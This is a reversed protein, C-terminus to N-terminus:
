NSVVSFTDTTTGSANNIPTLSPSAVRFGEMPADEQLPLYFPMTPDTSPMNINFDAPTPNGTATNISYFDNTTANLHAHNYPEFGVKSQYNMNIGFANNGQTPYSAPHMQTPQSPNGILFSFDRGLMVAIDSNPRGCGLYSSFSSLLTTKIEEEQQTLTSKLLFLRLGTLNQVKSPAANIDSLEDGLINIIQTIQDDTEHNPKKEQASLNGNNNSGAVYSFAPKQACSSAAGVSSSMDIVLKWKPTPLLKAFEEQLRHVLADDRKRQNTSYLCIIVRGVNPSPLPIGVVSRVGWQNAGGHREFDVCKLSLDEKWMPLGSTFVKGPLGCGGSFSFKQSYDGFSLLNFKTDPDIEAAPGSGNPPIQSDSTACGAFGLLNGQGCENGANPVWVDVHEFPVNHRKIYSLVKNLFPSSHLISSKGIMDFEELGDDQVDFVNEIDNKNESFDADLLALVEDTEAANFIDNGTSSTKLGIPENSAAAAIEAKTREIFVGPPATSVDESLAYGMMLKRRAVRSADRAVSIRKDMEEVSSLWADADVSQGNKLCYTSFSERWEKQMHFKLEAREKPDNIAQLFREEVKSFKTCEQIDTIFCVTGKYLNSSLKANKMKKTLRSQKSKLMSALFDNLKAGDILPINGDKFMSTLMDCFDIEEQTWRGTRCENSDKSERADDFSMKRNKGNEADDVSVASNKRKRNRKNAKSAEALKTAQDIEDFSMPFLSLGTVETHCSPCNQLVNKSQLPM